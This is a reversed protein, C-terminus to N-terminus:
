WPGVQNCFTREPGSFKFKHMKLFINLRLRVLNSKYGYVFDLWIVDSVSQSVLFHIFVGENKISFHNGLLLMM